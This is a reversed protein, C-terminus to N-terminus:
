DLSLHGKAYTYLRSHEAVKKRFYIEQKKPLYRKKHQGFLIINWVKRGFSFSPEFREDIPVANNLNTHLDQPLGMQLLQQRIEEYRMNFKQLHATDLSKLKAIRNAQFDIDLFARNLEEIPMM